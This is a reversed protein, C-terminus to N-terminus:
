AKKFVTDTNLPVYKYRYIYAHVCAELRELLPDDNGYEQGREHASNTYTQTRNHVNTYQTRNQVIIYPQTHEHVITYSQTRM